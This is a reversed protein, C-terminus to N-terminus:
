ATHFLVIERKGVSFDIYFDDKSGVIYGETNGVICHWTRGHKREFEQKMYNSIDTGGDYMNVALLACQLADRQMEDRMTTSHVKISAKAM